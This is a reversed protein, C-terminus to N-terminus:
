GVLDYINFYFIIFIDDIFIERIFFGKKKFINKRLFIDCKVM